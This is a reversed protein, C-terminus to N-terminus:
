KKESRELDPVIVTEFRVTEASEPYDRKLGALRMRAIELYTM